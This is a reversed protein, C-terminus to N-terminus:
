YLSKWLVTSILPNQPIGAVGPTRLRGFARVPVAKGADNWSFSRGAPITLPEAIGRNSGGHARCDLGGDEELGPRRGLDAWQDEGVGPGALHAYAHGGRAHAVGVQGQGVSDEGLEPGHHQSVLAGADDLRDAGVDFVEGGAVPGDQVPCRGTPGAPEAELPFRVQAFVGQVPGQGGVGFQGVAGGDVGPQVGAGEGLGRDYRGVRQDGQGLPDVRRGCRQQAARDEGTPAGDVVGRSQSGTVGGQDHPQAPDAHGQQLGGPDGPGVRQDRHVGGRLLLLRGTGQAGGVEQDGVGGRGLLHARDGSTAPDVVGELHHALGLHHAGGPVGGAPAAGDGHHAHARGLVLDGEAGQLHEM